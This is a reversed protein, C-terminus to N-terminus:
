QFYGVQQDLWTKFQAEPEVHIFGRMKYHGLGCLEACAIEFKGSRITRFQARSTFGPILDQKVRFHTIAFSHLVDHSRLSVVVPRGQPVHMEGRLVIDDEADADDEDLGIPNDADNVYEPAVKGFKSDKGPYRVIWEFQKGVVEIHLADKPADGYIKEWVPAGLIVVGFESVGVFLILPMAAWAWEVRKSPREFTTQNAEGNGERFRWVCWGLVFHGVLFVVGTTLLLYSIIEDVGAGHDSALLPQWRRVVFGFAVLIALAVFAIALLLPTKGARHKGAQPAGTESM